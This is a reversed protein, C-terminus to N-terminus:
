NRRRRFPAQSVTKSWGDDYQVVLFTGTGHRVLKLRPDRRRPSLWGGDNAALWELDELRRCSQLKRLEDEQTEPDLPAILQSLDSAFAM